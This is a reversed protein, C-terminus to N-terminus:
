ENRNRLVKMRVPNSIDYISAVVHKNICLLAIAM